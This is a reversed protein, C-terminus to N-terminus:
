YNKDTICINKSNFIQISRKGAGHESVQFHDASDPTNGSCQYNGNKRLEYNYGETQPIMNLNYEGYKLIKM